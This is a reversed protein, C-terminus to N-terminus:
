IENIDMRRSLTKNNYKKSNDYRKKVEKQWEKYPELSKEFQERLISVDELFKSKFENEASNNESTKTKNINYIEDRNKIIQDEIDKIANEITDGDINTGKLEKELTKRIQKINQSLSSSKKFEICSSRGDEWKILFDRKELTLEKIGLKLINETITFEIVRSIHENTNSKNNNSENKYSMKIVVMGSSSKVYNEM